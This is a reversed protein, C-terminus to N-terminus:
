FDYDFRNLTAAEYTEIDHRAITSAYYPRYEARETSENKQPLHDGQVGIRESLLKLFEPLNEFRGIADPIMEGSEDLLWETQPNCKSLGRVNYAGV